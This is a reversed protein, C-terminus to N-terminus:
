RNSTISISSCSRPRAGSRRARELANSLRDQFLRRNPLGTLEDHLALHKNHEIQEELVLLIMGVAVVYKPLNWMESELHVSPLFAGMAPAVVFVAAWALFGSTTILAGATPRRYAYYFHLCCGSYVTFLIANLALDAGNGPRGQVSLLFLSLALYLVVTTWRLPDNFKRLFPAYGGCACPWVSGRLGDPGVKGGARIHCSGSLSYQDIVIGGAYRPKVVRASVPDGGVHVPRGGM